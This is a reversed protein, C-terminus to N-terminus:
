RKPVVRESPEWTISIQLFHSPLQFFISDNMCAKESQRNYPCVGTDARLM